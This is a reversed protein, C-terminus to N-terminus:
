EPPFDVPFIFSMGILQGNKRGPTFRWQRVATIAPAAFVPDSAAIVRADGIRGATDIIVGVSVQGTQGTRAAEAPYQPPVYRILTPPDFADKESM